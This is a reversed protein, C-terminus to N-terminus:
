ERDSWFQYYFRFKKFCKFRIFKLKAVRKYKEKKISFYYCSIPFAVM